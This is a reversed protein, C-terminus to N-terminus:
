CYCVIEENFDFLSSKINSLWLQDSLSRRIQADYFETSCKWGMLKGNRGIRETWEVNSFRIKHSDLIIFRYRPNKYSWEKPDVSLLFIYDQHPQDLFELKEQLTPYKQLRSGSLNKILSLKTDYVGTKNSVAIGTEIITQDKGSGHGFNPQWDTTYGSQNLADACIEEWLTGKCQQRYCSHHLNLKEQIFPVLKEFQM